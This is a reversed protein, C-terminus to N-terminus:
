RCKRAEELLKCVELYQKQFKEALPLDVGNDHVHNLTKKLVMKANILQDYKQKSM